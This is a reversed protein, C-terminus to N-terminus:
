LPEENAIVENDRFILVFTNDQAMMGVFTKNLNRFLKRMEHIEQNSIIKYNWFVKIDGMDKKAVEYTFTTEFIKGNQRDTDIYGALGDKIM